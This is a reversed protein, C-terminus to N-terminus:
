AVLRLHRDPAFWKGRGTGWDDYVVFGRKHLRKLSAVIQGMPLKLRFALEHAETGYDHGCHRRMSAASRSVAQFVAADMADHPHVDLSLKMQRESM